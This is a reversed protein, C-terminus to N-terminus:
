RIPPNVKGILSNGKMPDAFQTIKRETKELLLHVNVRFEEVIADRLIRSGGHLISDLAEFVEPPNEFDTRAMLRLLARAENKGLINALSDIVAEKFLSHLDEAM